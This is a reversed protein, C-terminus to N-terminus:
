ANQYACAHPANQKTQMWTKTQEDMHVPGDEWTLQEPIHTAEFNVFFCNNRMTPDQVDANRMDIDHVVEQMHILFAIKVHALFMHHM